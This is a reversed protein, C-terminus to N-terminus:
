RAQATLIKIAFASFVGAFLYDILRTVRPSKKLLGAFGDAALVMPITLPLSLPIFMLGLFFLKGSAHPDSVSVFQPLFTMFFLIIKPNLLNIGLGTAWNRYLSRSKRARTEPSFASGNRIAQWALWVLYGAGVIKLALFAQPSAVILASLGLAVMCTHIVIGTMAGFMCALGAARGESLARGVFLTMDPGPTIAIIFTAVAFQLLVSFEPAFM